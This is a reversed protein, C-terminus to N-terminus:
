REALAEVAIDLRRAAQAIVPDIEDPTPFRNFSTVPMRVIIRGKQMRVFTVHIATTGGTTPYTAVLRDVVGDPALSHGAREFTVTPEGTLDDVYGRTDRVVAAKTCDAYEPSDIGEFEREADAETPSVLITQEVDARREQDPELDLAFRTEYAATRQPLGPGSGCLHKIVREPNLRVIEERTWRDGMEEPTLLGLRAAGADEDARVADWEWPSFTAPRALLTVVGISMAALGVMLAGGSRREALPGQLSGRAKMLAPEMTLAAALGITAGMAGTLWVIQGIALDTEVLLIGFALLTVGVALISAVVGLGRPSPPPATRRLVAAALLGGALAGAIGCVAARVVLALLVSMGPGKFVGVPVSLLGAMAVATGYLIAAMGRVSAPPAPQGAHDSWGGPDPTGPPPWQAVDPPRWFDPRQDSSVTEGVYGDQKDGPM